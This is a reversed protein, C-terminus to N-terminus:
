NRMWKIEIFIKFVILAGGQHTKNKITLKGNLCQKRLCWKGFESRAIQIHIIQLEAMTLKTKQSNDKDAIVLTVPYISDPFLKYQTRLSIKLFDPAM